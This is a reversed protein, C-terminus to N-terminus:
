QKTETHIAWWHHVALAAVGRIMVSLAVNADEDVNKMRNKRSHPVLLANVIGAGVKPMTLLPQYITEVIQHQISQALCHEKAIKNIHIKVDAKIPPIQLECGAVRRTLAEMFRGSQTLSGTNGILLSYTKEQQVIDVIVDEVPNFSSTKVEEKSADFGVQLAELLTNKVVGTFM